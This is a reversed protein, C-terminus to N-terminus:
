AQAPVATGHSSSVRGRRTLRRRMPEEIWYYAAVSVACLNAFALALVLWRNELAPYAARIQSLYTILVLNCFAQFSYFSCSARGLTVVASNSLLLKV